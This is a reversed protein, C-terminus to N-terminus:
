TDKSHRPIKVLDELTVAGKSMKVIELAIDFSPRRDERCISDLSNRHMGLLKAVDDRTQGSERIWIAVKGEFTPKRGPKGKEPKSRSAGM